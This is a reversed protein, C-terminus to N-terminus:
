DGVGAHLKCPATDSQSPARSYIVARPQASSLQTCRPAAAISAIHRNRRRVLRRQWLGPFDNIRLFKGFSRCERVAQPRIILNNCSIRTLRGNSPRAM